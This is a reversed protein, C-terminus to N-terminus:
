ENDTNGDKSSVPPVISTIRVGPKGDIEIIEGKGAAAGNVRITVALPNNGLLELISGTGLSKLQSLTIIKRGVEFVMRIKLMDLSEVHEDEAEDTIDTEMMGGQLIIKGPEYSAHCSITHDKGAYVAYRFGGELLIIDGPNLSLATGSELDAYGACISVSVPLDNWCIEQTNVISEAIEAFLAAAEPGATIRGTFKRPPGQTECTFEVTESEAPLNGEKGFSLSLEAGNGYAERITNLVPELLTEIVASRLPAALDRIDRSSFCEPAPLAPMQLIEILAGANGISLEIVAEVTAKDTLRGAPRCSWSVSEAGPFSINLNGRAACLKAM